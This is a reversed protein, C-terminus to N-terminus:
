TASPPIPPTTPQPTPSQSTATPRSKHRRFGAACRLKSAARVPVRLEVAIQEDSAGAAVLLRLARARVETGDPIPVAPVVCRPCATVAGGAYAIHPYGCACLPLVIGRDNYPLGARIVGAPRRDPLGARCEGGVRQPCSGCIGLALRNGDDGTDWWEPPLGRCTGVGYAPARRATRYTQRAIM